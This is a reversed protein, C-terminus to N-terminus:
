QIVEIFNIKKACIEGFESTSRYYETGAPIECKFLVCDDFPKKLLAMLKCTYCHIFGTTICYLNDFHEIFEIGFAEMSNRGDIIDGSVKTHTYPTEYRPSNLGPLCECKLYKYITIPKKAVQAKKQKTYLCM